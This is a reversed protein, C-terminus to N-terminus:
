LIAALAPSVRGVQGSYCGRMDCVGLMGSDGGIGMDVRRALLAGGADIEECDDDKESKEGNKEEGGHDFPPGLGTWNAWACEIGTHREGCEKLLAGHVPEGDDPEEGDASRKAAEHIDDGPAHRPIFKTECDEIQGLHLCAM